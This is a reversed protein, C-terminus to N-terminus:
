TICYQCDYFLLILLHNIDITEFYLHTGRQAIQMAGNILINKGIVNSTNPTVGNITTTNGSSADTIANVAITSM